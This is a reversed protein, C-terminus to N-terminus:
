YSLVTRIHNSDFVMVEGFGSDDGAGLLNIGGVPHNLSFIVTYSGFTGTLKIAQAQHDDLIRQERPQYVPIKEVATDWQENITIVTVTACDALVTRKISLSSAAERRNYSRSIWADEIVFEMDQYPSTLRLKNNRSSIYNVSNPSASSLKGANNFHFKQMLQHTGQGYLSDCVLLIGPKIHVLQRRVLLGDAIYGLHCGSVYYYRDDEYWSGKLPKASVGFQWSACCDTFAKGDVAVTNHAAQSKLYRRDQNDVYTFRGCDMLVDEGNAFLDFHLLDAHGHGSGLHGCKFALMTADEQWSSRFFYNGSDEMAASVRSPTIAELGAYTDYADGGLRWLNDFDLDPFGGYKLQGDRFLYAGLTLIDRIDTDDSDCRMWQHHDPKASYLTAYCMTTAKQYLTPSIEQGHEKLLLITELFCWLVEHHYMPSQEWHCGDPLVQITAEEDLRHLFLSIQPQFNGLAKDQLYFCAALAGSNALVGWNSILHTPDYCGLLYDIHERLSAYILDLFAPPLAATQETIKLAWVWNSCRIGSDLTRWTCGNENGKLPVRVIFDTILRIFADLYEQKETAAFAQALCVMYRHRSLMVTWECDDCPMYNWDVAGDFVVPEVTAEMDWPLTFVFRNNAVDDAIILREKLADTCFQESLSIIKNIDM